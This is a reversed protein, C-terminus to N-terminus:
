ATDPQYVRMLAAYVQVPNYAEVVKKQGAAGLKACAAPDKWLRQMKSALDDADGPTFLLGQKEDEVIEPLGGIRACIVPRAHAMSELLVSPFGEYCGTVFLVMDCARYLAELEDRPQEGLFTVNPPATAPLEPMRWFSGAIRIPIEPCRAAAQLLTPLDKEPSLRGAFLAFREGHSAPSRLLDDARSEGVAPVSNPIVSIVNSSFGAEVFWKKQFATLCIFAHVNRRMVGTIRAVATRLAYGLSRPLSKECNHMVCRWEHGGVCEHCPKGDRLLLANPCILRFNHLTMIVPIGARRCVPLLSPSLLPFLNHVHVLDPQFARLKKAFQRASFPNWIGSFFARLRGSFTADIEASSRSFMEVTHGQDRLLACLADVAAEEGSYKGYENHVMLIRM